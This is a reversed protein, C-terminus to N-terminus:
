TVDVEIGTTARCNQPLDQSLNLLNETFELDDPPIELVAACAVNLVRGGLLDGQVLYIVGLVKSLDRMRPHFRHLVM